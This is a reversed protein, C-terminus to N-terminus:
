TPKGAPMDAEILDRINRATREMLPQIRQVTGEDIGPLDTEIILRTGGSELKEFAVRGGAHLNEDRIEVGMTRRPEWEVIVMEGEVPQEFHTNRRRIRSGLRLPGDTIQELEMDPDWRPHNRVHDVAYWRWVLDVPRHVTVSVSARMDAM